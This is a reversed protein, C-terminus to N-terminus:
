LVFAAYYYVLRDTQFVHQYKVYEVLVTDAPLSLAIADRTVKNFYKPLAREHREKEAHLTALRALREQLAEISDPTNEQLAKITHQLAEWAALHHREIETGQTRIRGLQDTLLFTEAAKRLLLAEFLQGVRLTDVPLTLALTIAMHLSHQFPLSYLTREKESLCAVTSQFHIDERELLELLWDLANRRFSEHQFLTPHGCTAILHRLTSLTSPHDLGLVREFGARASKLYPLAQRIDGMEQYTVGLNLLSTLTHPHDAGLLRKQTQLTDEFIPLARAYDGAESYVNALNNMVTLTLPSKGGRVRHLREAADEWCKLAEADDGMEAYLLGLNNLTSLTEIHDPGYLREKSELSQRFLPWARDYSCTHLYVLALNNDTTMQLRQYSGPATESLCTHRLREAAEELCKLAQDYEGMESYLQGLNNLTLLTEIHDAGLLREFGQLSNEMLPIAEDYKSEKILQEAVSRRYRHLYTRLLQM